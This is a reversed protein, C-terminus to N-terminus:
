CGPGPSCRAALLGPWAWGLALWGALRGGSLMSVRVGKAKSVMQLHEVLFRREDAHGPQPWPPRPPPPTTFPLCLCGGPHPM